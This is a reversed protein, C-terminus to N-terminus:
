QENGTTIPFLKKAMSHVLTYLATTMIFLSTYYSITDDNTVLFLTKHENTGTLIPVPAECVTHGDM